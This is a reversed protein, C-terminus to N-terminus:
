LFKSAIDDLSLADEKPPEPKPPATPAAPAGLKSLLMMNASRLGENLETFSTLKTDRESLTSNVESYNDRLEQVITSLKAQDVGEIKLSEVFTKLRAEHEEHSLMM